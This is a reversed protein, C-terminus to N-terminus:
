SDEEGYVVCENQVMIGDAYSADEKSMQALAFAGFILVAILILVLCFRYKKISMM